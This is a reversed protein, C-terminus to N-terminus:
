TGKEKNILINLLTAATSRFNKETIVGVLKNNKIVPLCGIRNTQMMHMAKKISAEPSIYKPNKVMIDKVITARDNGKEKNVKNEIKCFKKWM